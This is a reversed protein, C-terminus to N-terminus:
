EEDGAISEIGILCMYITYAIGNVERRYAHDGGNGNFALHEWDYKDMEGKEKDELWDIKKVCDNIIAQFIEETNM